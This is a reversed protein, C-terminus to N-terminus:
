HTVNHPDLIDRLGDGLLNFGLVSLLLAIGPYWLIWPAYQYAQLGENIMNGWSPTPPQIGIGLYSLGAETLINLGVNLMSLVIVPGIVNPLIVKFLIRNNSAGLAREAQVYDFEKLSLVQGRVVRTMVGWGLIGIAIFVNTISPSLIAVLAMNFILFPFALVTDTVRMIITDVIGGFYGSILGLTVGILLNILSAFIGVELSVRSGYIVRSFVDRGLADAGWIFKHNPSTPMGNSTIGNAFQKAYPHPAIWPAFVAFVLLILVIASGIYIMPFTRFSKWARKTLSPKAKPYIVASSAPQVDIV